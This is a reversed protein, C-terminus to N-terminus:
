KHVNNMCALHYVTKDCSQSEFQEVQCYKKYNRVIAANINKREHPPVNTNRVNAPNSTGFIQSCHTNKAQHEFCRFGEVINAQKRVPKNEYGAVLRKRVKSMEKRSSTAFEHDCTRTHSSKSKSQNRIHAVGPQPAPSSYFVSLPQKTKAM